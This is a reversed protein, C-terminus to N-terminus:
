LLPCTAFLSMSNECLVTTNPEVMSHCSNGVEEALLRQWVDSQVQEKELFSGGRLQEEDLNEGYVAPSVKISGHIVNGLETSFKERYVGAAHKIRDISLASLEKETQELKRKAHSMEQQLLPVIKAVNRRYCDEVAELFTRLRTIGVNSLSERSQITNGLKAMSPIIVKEVERLAM